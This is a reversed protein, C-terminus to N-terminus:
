KGMKDLPLEVRVGQEVFKPRGMDAVADIMAGDRGLVTDALRILLRNPNAHAARARLNRAIAYEAGTGLKMCLLIYAAAMSRSVGAWCHILMPATGDWDQGFDILQQVHDVSPVVRGESAVTIDSLAIRLHREPAIGPPTDPQYTESLISVLHSPHYTEATEAVAALPTVLIMSM